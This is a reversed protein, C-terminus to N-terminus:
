RHQHESGRHGLRPRGSSCEHHKSRTGHEHEGTSVVHRQCLQGDFGSDAQLRCEDDHFGDRERRQAIGDHGPRRVSRSQRSAVLSGDPVEVVTTIITHSGSQAFTHSGTVSYTTGSLSIVGASTAGDGWNIRAVFASAPEVGNAHTFTAVTQNTLTTSSTVFPASVVIAPDTVVTTAGATNNNLNADSLSSTVSAANTLHGIEIAQATVTATVTQGVSISGFSFTVVSGSQTSTGQSKTSSVYKLNTGLTDTLVVNTATTPGNNTVTLSYTVNSGETSTSPGINTVALDASPGVIGGTFTVPNSAIGNAVVTLSYTGYPMSAPLSFDTTVPTSGTAVGTSSWNFTQAFYVQGSGNKLEIIPYNTDM